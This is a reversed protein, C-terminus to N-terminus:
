DNINRYLQLEYARRIARYCYMFVIDISIQNKKLKLAIILQAAIFM